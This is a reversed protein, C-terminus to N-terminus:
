PICGITLIWMYRGKDPVVNTLFGTNHSNEEKDIRISLLWDCNWSRIQTQLQKSIQNGSSLVRQKQPLWVGNPKKYQQTQPDCGATSQIPNQNQARTYSGQIIEPEKNQNKLDKKRGQFHRTERIWIICILVLQLFPSADDRAMFYLLCM